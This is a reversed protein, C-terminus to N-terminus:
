KGFDLKEMYSRRTGGLVAANAIRESMALKRRVDQVPLMVVVAAAAGTNVLVGTVCAM